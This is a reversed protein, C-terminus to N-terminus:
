SNKFTEVSAEQLAQKWAESIAERNVFAYIGLTLVSLAVLAAFKM